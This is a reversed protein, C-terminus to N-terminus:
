FNHIFMVKTNEIQNLEATNKALDRVHVDFLCIQRGNHVRDGYSYIPKQHVKDNMKNQADQLGLEDNAEIQCKIQVREQGAIKRLQIGARNLDTLVNQFAAYRPVRLRAYVSSYSQGPSQEKVYIDQSVLSIRDKQSLTSLQQKFQTKAEEPNACHEANFKVLVDTTAPVINNDQHFWYSLPKSIWKRAWLEISVIKWSFWDGWTKSPLQQYYLALKQRIEHYNHDYFPITQLDTAYKKYFDALHQQMPTDNKKSIFPALFLSLIAKPLLELTTFLCVFVDMVMYESSAIQWFSNYKRATSYSNYFVKWLDGLQRFYPFQFMSHGKAIFQAYEEAMEVNRWEPGTMYSQYQERHYNDKDTLELRQNLSNLFKGLKQEGRHQCVM